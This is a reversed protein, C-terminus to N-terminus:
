LRNSTATPVSEVASNEPLKLTPPLWLNQIVRKVNCTPTLGHETTMGGRRQKGDRSSLTKKSYAAQLRYVGIKSGVGLGMPQM